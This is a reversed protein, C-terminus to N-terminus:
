KSFESSPGLPLLSPVAYEPVCETWHKIILRPAFLSMESGHSTIIGNKTIVPPGNLKSRQTPFRFEQM